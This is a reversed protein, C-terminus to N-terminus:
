PMFLNDKNDWTIGSIHQIRTDLKDVAGFAFSYNPPSKLVRVKQKCAAMLAPCLLLTLVPFKLIKM